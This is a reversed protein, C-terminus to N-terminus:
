EIMDQRTKDATDKDKRYGKLRHNLQDAEQRGKKWSYISIVAFVVAVSAAMLLLSIPEHIDFWGFYSGGGLVFLNILLYHLIVRVIFEKRSMTRNWPYILTSVACPLSVLPLQWLLSAPIRGDTSGGSATLVAAAFLSWCTIEYFKHLIFQFKTM